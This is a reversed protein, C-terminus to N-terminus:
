TVEIRSFLVSAITIMVACFGGLVGFSLLPPMAGEGVLAGRILDVGYMLPDAYCAPKM